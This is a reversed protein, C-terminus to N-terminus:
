YNMLVADDIANTTFVAVAIIAVGVVILLLIVAAVVDVVNVVVAQL